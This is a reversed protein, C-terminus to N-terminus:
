KSMAAVVCNAILEMGASGPHVGYQDPMYSGLNSSTFGADNRIDVYTCGYTEAADEIVNCFGDASSGYYLLNLLYVDADPYTETISAIMAPYNTTFDALTCGNAFDNTGLYVAIVDPTEGDNNHLQTARTKGYVCVKDGSFSNNVLVEMGTTDAVRKWWTQDVSTVDNNNGYYWVANSGITSNVAANNSYGNFTSISDGLISFKLGTLSGITVDKADAKPVLNEDILMAKLTTGTAEPLDVAYEVTTGVTQADTDIYTIDIATLKNGEYSALVLSVVGDDDTGMNKFSVTATKTKGNLTIESFEDAEVVPKLNAVNLQSGWTAHGVLEGVSHFRITYLLIDSSGINELTITNVGEKVYLLEIDNGAADTTLRSSYSVGAPNYIDAYFGTDSTLRLTAENATGFAIYPYVMGALGLSPTYEITYTGGVPITIGINAWGYLDEQGSIIPENAITVQNFYDMGNGALASFTVNADVDTTAITNEGAILYIYGEEGAALTVTAGIESTLTVAVDSSVKYVGAYSATYVITNADPTPTPTPTPEVVDDGYPVVKLQAMKMQSDWASNGVLEGASHIRIAYLQTTASGTNEITITNVGNRVYAMEPDTKALDAWAWSGGNTASSYYIDAYYGTDFTVKLIGEATNNMTAIYPYVFGNMGLSPTYTFTYTEGPALDKLMATEVLDEQGSIVPEETITVENIYALGNGSLETFTLAASTDTTTITNQGQILYFYDTAGAALTVTHGTENTLTVAKDSTVQYVGAYPATYTMQNDPTPVPTPEVIEGDYPLVKCSAMKVQEWSTMSSSRSLRLGETTVTSGSDNTLTVYNQGEKLYVLLLDTGNGNVDTDEYLSGVNARTYKFDGYYGTDTEVHLNGSVGTTFICVYRIGPETINAQFTVSKGAPITIQRGSTTVGSDKSYIFDVANTNSDNVSYGMYYHEYTNPLSDVAVSDIYSMGNNELMAFTVNAAENTTSMHNLGKFMYFYGTGGASLTVKHGTENILTVAKDSTAKYVGAYPADYTMQGAVVTPTSTPTPTATPATTPTPTPVVVEEGAPVVKLEAMKMQDVWYTATALVMTTGFSTTNISVASGSTNTLTVTQAGDRLYVVEPDTKASGDTWASSSGGRLLIEAYYGTDTTVKITGGETGSIYPYYLGAGYNPIHTFSRTEGAALTIGAAGTTPDHDDEPGTFPEASISVQDIYALGNDELEAFTLTVTNDSLTVNNNGKIMYFYAPTNAALTVTHGTENTLTVAKDSTVEYVGAYPANTYSIEGVIGPTPVPTATPATTPTPTTEPADPDYGDAIVKCNALVFQAITADTASSGGATFSSSKSCRLGTLTIASPGNNIITINNEGARLYALLFDSNTGADEYHTASNALTTAYQGTHGTDTELTIYKGEGSTIVTMYYLGAQPADARLTVSSSNPITVSSAGVSTNGYTSVVNSAVNGVNEYGLKFHETTVPVTGADVENIYAMGNNVLATFTLNASADSMTINNNGKIMYFYDTAGAALTVTHGTENTLTVAKDSTVQYVGAYPAKAATINSYDPAETPTPTATPAPTEGPPTKGLDEVLQLGKFIVNNASDGSMFTITHNGATLLVSDSSDDTWYEPDSIRGPAFTIIDGTDFDATLGTGYLVNGYALRNSTDIMAQVNYYATKPVGILFTVYATTYSNQQITVSDSGITVGSNGQVSNALDTGVLISSATEVDGPDFEIGVTDLLLQPVYFRGGVYVCVQGDLDITQGNYTAKSTNREVTLNYDKFTFTGTHASTTVSKADDYDWYTDTVPTYTGLSSVDVFLEKTVADLDVGILDALYPAIDTNNIVYNNFNSAVGPTSATGPIGAVGAPAYLFVGGNRATHSGNGSWTIYATGPIQGSQILSVAGSQNLVNMGGTDHDPAIVVVTDTRGKAYEIAVKCAEDFAIFETVMDLANSGHGGGDVASGEVMLFFGEDSGELAQIASKTMESLNPYSAANTIDRNSFTFDGGLTGWVKAGSQLALMQSVSTVSSYGHAAIDQAAEDYAGAGTANMPLVVDLGQNIQQQAITRYYYRDEAHSSFAAPTAHSWPYTSVLGARKGQYQAAELITAIPKRAPNIGIFYNNTKKGTALATGSAASDTVAQNNSYTTEAGVLYDKLYMKNVTQTTSNPFRSNVGGAQKVADALNFPDMGGGDPIMYIINKIQPTAASVISMSSLVMMLCLLLSLIKRMKM